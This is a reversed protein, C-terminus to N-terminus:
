RGKGRKKREEAFEEPTMDVRHKYFKSVYRPNVMFWNENSTAVLVDIDLLYDRYKAYTRASSVSRM